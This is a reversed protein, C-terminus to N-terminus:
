QIALEEPSEQNLVTGITFTDIETDLLFKLWKNIFVRFEDPTVRIFKTGIAINNKKKWSVFFIYKIPDEFTYVNGHALANRIIFLINGVKNIPSVETLQNDSIYNPDFIVENSNGHRWNKLDM